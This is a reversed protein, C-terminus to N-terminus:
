KQKGKKTTSDQVQHVENQRPKAFNKEETKEARMLIESARNVQPLLELGRSRLVADLLGALFSLEEESVKINM